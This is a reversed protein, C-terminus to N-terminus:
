VRLAKRSRSMNRLKKKWILCILGQGGAKTIRAAEAESFESWRQSEHPRTFFSVKILALNRSIKQLREMDYLRAGPALQYEGKFPTTLFIKGHPKLVRQLEWMVNYDSNEDILKDEYLGVGIHEITSVIAVNNFLANRFPLKTVDTRIFTMKKPKAYYPRIDVGFVTFGRWLLEYSLFSEACGVDLVSCPSSTTKINRLLWPYEVSREGLGFFSDFLMRLRFLMFGLIYCHSFIKSSVICKAIITKFTVFFKRPHLM